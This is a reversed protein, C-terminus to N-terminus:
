TSLHHRADLLPGLVAILCRSGGAPQWRVFFPCDGEAEPLSLSPAPQVQLPVDLSPADQVLPSLLPSRCLRVPM